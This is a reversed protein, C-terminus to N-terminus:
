QIWFLFPEALVIMQIMQVQASRKSAPQLVSLISKEFHTGDAGKESRNEIVPKGGGRKVVAPDPIPVASSAPVVFIGTRLPGIKAEIHEGECCPAQSDLNNRKPSHSNSSM